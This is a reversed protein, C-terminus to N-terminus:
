RACTRSEGTMWMAAIKPASMRTNSAPVIAARPRTSQHKAQKSMRKFQRARRRGAAACFRRPRMVVEPSPNMRGHEDAVSLKPQVNPSPGCPSEFRLPEGEELPAWSAALRHLRRM